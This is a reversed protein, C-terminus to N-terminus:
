VYPSKPIGARAKGRTELGGIGKTGTVTNDLVEQPSILKSISTYAIKECIFVPDLAHILVRMPSSAYNAGAEIIAEYYSQCAGAFIVLEDYNSQFERAKRVSEVFYRSSRYSDLSRFNLSGKLMGDHGTLVLIDPRYQKLLSQIMKPQNPEPVMSGNAEVGLQKYKQLCMNLYEEDGDIHLVTGTKAFTSNEQNKQMTGGRLIGSKGRREMAIKKLITNVKKQFMADNESIRNMGPKTLDDEPSDAMIRLSTGKLIYSSSGDPKKVIQVIKFYVDGGYSKRTVIDGIKFDGM